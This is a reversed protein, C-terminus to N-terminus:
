LINSTKTISITSSIMDRSNSNPVTLILSLPVRKKVNRELYSKSGPGMTQKMKKNRFSKRSKRCLLSAFYKTSRCLSCYFCVIDSTNFLFINIKNMLHYKRLFLFETVTFPSNALNKIKKLKCRTKSFINNLNLNRLELEYRTKSSARILNDSNRLKSLSM